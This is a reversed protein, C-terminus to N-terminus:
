NSQIFSNWFDRTTGPAPNSGARGFGPSKLDGANVMEGGPRMTFDIREGPTKGLKQSALRFGEPPPM